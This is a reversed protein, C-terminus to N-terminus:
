YNKRDVGSSDRTVPKSAQPEQYVSYAPNKSAIYRDKATIVIDSGSGRVVKHQGMFKSITEMNKSYTEAASGYERAAKRLTAIEEYIDQKSKGRMEFPIVAGLNHPDPVDVNVEIGMKLATEIQKIADQALNAAAQNEDRGKKNRLFEDNTAGTKNDLYANHLNSLTRDVIGHYSEQPNNTGFRVGETGGVRWGSGQSQGGNSATWFNRNAAGAGKVLGGLAGTWGGTRAGSLMGSLTGGLLAAGFGLGTGKSKIGLSQMIFKPAQGAFFLLSIYVITKALGGTNSNTFLTNNSTSINAIIAIVFYIIALRLFLDLYTSTLTKVYNAFMGDRSSKPDIYSIAPIPSLLRLIGLKIMRIAVDFCFLFVIVLTGLGVIFATFGNYEYMYKDTNDGTECTYNILGYLDTDTTIVDKQNSALSKCADDTEAVVLFASHITLTIKDGISNTEFYSASIDTGLILSSLTGDQIIRSQLDYLAGFLLGNAQYLANRESADMYESDSQWLNFNEQPMFAYLLILMMIVRGFLKGLGKEKDSISDPNILYSIFSVCLKFLMFVGIIMFLRNFLTIIFDNEFMTWSTLEFFLDFVRACLWYAGNAINFLIDRFADLYDKQTTLLVNIYQNIM